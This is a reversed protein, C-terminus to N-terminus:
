ELGVTIKKIPWEPDVKTCARLLERIKHQSLLTAGLHVHCNIAKGKKLVSTYGLDFASLTTKVRAVLSKTAIRNFSIAFYFDPLYSDWWPRWDVTFPLRAVRLRKPRIKGYDNIIEPVPLRTWAACVPMGAAEKWVLECGHGRSDPGIIDANAAFRNRRRTIQRANMALMFWCQKGLELGTLLTFQEELLDTLRQRFDASYKAELPRDFHIVFTPM